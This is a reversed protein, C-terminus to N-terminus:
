VSVVAAQLSREGLRAKTAQPGEGDETQVESHPGSYLQVGSRAGPLRRAHV